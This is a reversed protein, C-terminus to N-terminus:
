VCRWRGVSRNARDEASVLREPKAADQRLYARRRGPLAASRQCARAPGRRHSHSAARSRSRASPPPRGGVVRRRRALPHLSANRHGGRDHDASRRQRRAGHRRRFRDDKGRPQEAAPMRLAGVDLRPDRLTTHVHLIPGPGDPAGHALGVTVLRDNEWTWDGIMPLGSWGALGYCSLDARRAAWTRCAV